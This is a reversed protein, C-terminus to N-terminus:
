FKVGVISKFTGGLKIADAAWLLKIIDEPNEKGFFGIEEYFNRNILLCEIPNRLFDWIRNKVAFLIDKESKVFESFKRILSKQMHLGSLIIFCWDKTSEKIAKDFLVFKEDSPVVFQKFNTKQEIQKNTIIQKDFEEFFEQHYFLTDRIKSPNGDLSIVSICVDLCKPLTIM